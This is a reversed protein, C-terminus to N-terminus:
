EIEEPKNVYLEGTLAYIVREAINSARDGMRELNHVVKVLQQGRTVAEPHEAMHSVIARMNARNLDDLEDDMADVDRALVVDRSVYADLAKNLMAECLKQMEGISIPRPLQTQDELRIAVKAIGNAYDGMRELEVAIHTSAVLYRLDTAFPGQMALAEVCREEIQYRLRDNEPEIARVERALATNRDALARVAMETMRNVMSGLRLVDDRVDNLTKDLVSRNHINM